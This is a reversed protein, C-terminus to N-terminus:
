RLIVVYSSCHTRAYPPASRRHTPPAPRMCMHSITVPHTCVTAPVSSRAARAEDGLEDEKLNQGVNHGGHRYTLAEIVSPGLGRRAAEVCHAVADRVLLVDSGDVSLRRSPQPQPQPQPKPKPEPTPKPEPKPKPTPTPTPKPTPQPTPKPKPTPHARRGCCRPRSRVLCASYRM